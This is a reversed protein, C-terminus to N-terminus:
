EIEFGLFREANKWYIKEYEENTFGLANFREFELKPDWMPFDSGFLVRDAGYIQVLEKMRRNGMFAMSSSCDIFCNEHELYELAVDHISWGGMHAANVRLAPFTNLVNILRTPSSYDYRYDGAHVILPMGIAEMFEYVDMLRPDDMNVQQTDPHLKVGNLGLAQARELETIPNEYEHHMTAFGIFQPHKECEGAIFTNITEVAKPATAVSHVVFREIPTDKAAAILKEATGEGKMKLLYFEGIAEVARAAIKEPYIHAHIDIVRM